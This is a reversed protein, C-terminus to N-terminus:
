LYDIHLLKSSQVRFYDLKKLNLRFAKNTELSLDSQHATSTASGSASSTLPPVNSDPKLGTKDTPYFTAKVTQKYNAKLVM